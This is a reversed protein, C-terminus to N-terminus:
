LIMFVSFHLSSVPFQSVSFTILETRMKHVYLQAVNLCIRIHTHTHTPKEVQLLIHPFHFGEAPLSIENGNRLSKVKDVLLSTASFVKVLAPGLLM